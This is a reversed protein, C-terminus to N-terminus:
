FNNKIDGAERHGERPVEEKIKVGEVAFETLGTEARCSLYKDM